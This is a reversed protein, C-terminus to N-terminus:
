TYLEECHFGLEKAVDFFVLDKHAWKTVHHSFTTLIFGDSSVLKRCSDLLNIHQSHNFIVDALLIVDFPGKAALIEIVEADGWAFGMVQFINGEPAFLNPINVRASEKITDLLIQEPYDTAISIEAGNIACLLSPLSAAAGLEVTRKGRVLAPNKDIYHALSQGANWLKHAWLSHQPALHVTLQSGNARTFTTQTPKPSPPRFDKPEEFMSFEQEFDSDNDRTELMKIPPFDFLVLVYLTMFFTNLCCIYSM